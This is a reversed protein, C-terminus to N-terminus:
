AQVPIAVTVTEKGDTVALTVEGKDGARVVALARGYYTTYSGETFREETRPNASGFGLLEGGTVTATLPRDTNMEVEGNVSQLTVPIYLIGGPRVISVEPNLRLHTKGVASRLASRGLEKGNTDFVVAELEGPAYKVKFTAKCDKFKQKGVEQENLYLVARAANKGAFVEVVAKNGDCGSWSWSPLGNTGRWVMKAPKEKPHNVPQVAIAPKKLLGWVAQAWFLEANPNGLIDLVGTDALLWPYPKNFGKSDPTYGWAGLGVEGLYDWATWMFDGVLYPYQEVMAWNKAIDQPFTESGFILRDPHTKGELPYRGSAYNYGAIDLSDLLPSTIEDAKKSNAAKNMNTGVLNTVLNFMTSSMGQMAKDGSEDRGGDEKYVGKGGASSKIIMLNFGGTVPRTPDTEHLLDIMERAKELGEPKAPESVENGISYLVVSPHNFDRRVMALLDSQYNERWQGAYDFKSKHNFWMDWTEDMLYMGLKDCAELMARSCPNHSARIANFGAEKLKKVRRYESEDYVAAGLIGNDSHVCGGRLLVSKGNIYFGKNDWTVTRIGFTETITDNETSVRCTYLNPTEASWLKANPIELEVTEGESTAVVTEGDLIEIKAPKKMEIKIKAPAYSVTSIRVSEPEISDKAGTWLWVPRYIGAGSYWRSDPQDANSCEVRITNEGAQLYEDLEVFFPIYGYAAGGAEQGNVFVKANKYVGEFQLLVHEAEPKAFTKEYVYAGGPFYAQASGSPAAPDRTEFIMADHPLTVPKIEGGQKAFRWNNNFSERKM